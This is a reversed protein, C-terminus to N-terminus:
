LENLSKATNLLRKARVVKKDDIEVIGLFINEQEAYVRYLGSDQEPLVFRQGQRLRDTLDPPLTLLPIHLIGADCSEILDDRQEASLQEFEAQTKMHASDFGSIQTRRLETVHAGCGLNEGLDDVITRIYTGKSCAITMTVYPFEIADVSLEYVTIQRIPRPVDIGKRAYYYLPKGEYKLASYISPQQDSVGKFKLAEAIVQEATVTVDRTEVIEGEADSTTTREGLKATVQYTKDADLLFQSFKTAEGFCIPLLGTALPDLAGTHGAKEAQYLFRMNQLARNSSIDKGKDLLIIGNLPRFKVRKNM